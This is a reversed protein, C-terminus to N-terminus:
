KVVNISIIDKAEIYTFCTQYTITEGKQYCKKIFEGPKVRHKKTIRIDLIRKWSEYLYDTSEKDRLSEWYDFDKEENVVPGNNLPSHWLGYDSVIVQNIPKELEILYGKKYYRCDSKRNHAWFMGGDNKGMDKGMIKMQNYLWQYPLKYLVDDPNKSDQISFPYVISNKNLENIVEQPQVTYLKM